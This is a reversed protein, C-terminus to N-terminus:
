LFYNNTCIYLLRIDSRWDGACLWHDSCSYNKRISVSDGLNLTAVVLRTDHVTYELNAVTRPFLTALRRFKVKSLLRNLLDQVQRNM